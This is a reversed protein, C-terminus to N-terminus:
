KKLSKEIKILILAIFVVAFAAFFKFMVDLLVGVGSIMALGAANTVGAEIERASNAMELGTKSNAFGCVFLDNATMVTDLRADYRKISNFKSTNNATGSEANKWFKVMGDLMQEQEDPSLEPIYQGDNCDIDNKPFPARTLSGIRYGSVYSSIISMLSEPTMGRKIDDFQETNAKADQFHKRISKHIALFQSPIFKKEDASIEEEVEVQIQKAFLIEEAEDYELSNVETELSPDKGSMVSGILLMVLSTVLVGTVTIVMLVRMTRSLKEELIKYIKKIAAM